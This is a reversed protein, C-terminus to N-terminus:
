KQELKRIRRIIETAVQPPNLNTTNIIIDFPKKDRGFDIGYLRMYLEKNRADRIKMTEKAEKLSTHDRKTMRKVREDLSASMWVKICNKALWPLTYSTVVINGHKIKELMRRDTEKDFELDNEREKLFAIGEKTDWWSMGKPHYGRDKAMERLIDSGGMEKIKLRKSLLKSVHTKGVAPLGSLIIAKLTVM